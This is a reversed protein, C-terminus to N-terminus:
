NSRVDTRVPWKGQLKLVQEIVERVAGKGGKAQTIYHSIEKIESVADAPCAKFGVLLMAEYDPMDDGIFLLNEMSHGNKAAWEKLVAVKDHVGMYVEKVGLGNLRLRVGESQGGTIAIVSIGQRVALQLAYGDRVNFARWQQGEENVLLQGDTLVGDVDLVIGNVHKFLDYIMNM